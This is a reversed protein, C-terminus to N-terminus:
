GTRPSRACSATTRRPTVRARRDVLDRRPEVRPAARDVVLVDCLQRAIPACPAASTGSARADERVAVGARERGGAVAGREAHDARRDLLALPDRHEGVLRPREQLARPQGGPLQHAVADLGGDDGVVHRRRMRRPWISQHDDAGVADGRVAVDRVLDAGVRDRHQRLSCPM